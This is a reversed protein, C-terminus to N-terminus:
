LAPLVADIVACRREVEVAHLARELAEDVEDPRRVRLALAGGAAEAIGAYDAPPEFRVGMDNARAAYGDPHLALTSLKPSKWGGNNYVVQLFPTRHQRAMWHVTAPISFLYSGDGCLAAVRADPRALKVGIAAGGSWGLSSSGSTFFTGPKTRRMGDCIVHYHSVGENLVIADEGWHAAIRATLYEATLTPQGEERAALSKQRAQALSEWYARRRSMLDPSVRLPAALLQDLATKCDAEHRSAAPIAWLPIDKKLPDLDIHRVIAGEAPRNVRSIWPVDSDLVLVFDASALAENQVPQNWQNGQYLAHDAPFNMASPASELLGAGFAECFAVLRAVAGEKRGAYSTVVLPRECTELDALITSVSAGDLARPSPTGHPLLSPAGGEPVIEEMVERAGMLYVPGQPDSQAMQLARWTMQAVNRGTRVEGDWKMYQRVIGRQDRVDQLWHIFENRTGFLEGDQTFPAAGAFILVPVRARMANHVAGGLAQTGCDVHVIVAQPRGSALAHGHAASLAVMENPATVFDPLTRGVERAEAAAELLAPHESGWNAFIHAVGADQLAELFAMSASPM